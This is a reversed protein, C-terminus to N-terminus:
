MGHHNSVTTVFKTDCPHMQTRLPIVRRNWYFGDHFTLIGDCNGTFVMMSHLIVVVIKWYNDHNPKKLFYIFLNGNKGMPPKDRTSNMVHSLILFWLDIIMNCYLTCYLYMINFNELIADTFSLLEIDMFLFSFYFM